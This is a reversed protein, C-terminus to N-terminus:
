LSIKKVVRGAPATVEVVAVGAPLSEVSIVDKGSYEGLLAGMVSYIRCVTYDGSLVLVRSAKDYLVDVGDEGAVSGVGSSGDKVLFTVKPLDFGRRCSSIGYVFPETNSTYYCSYYPSSMSPRNSKFLLMSSNESDHRTYVGINGGNYVFPENFVVVMNSGALDISMDGSFVDSYCNEPLMDDSGYSGEEVNGIGYSLNIDLTGSGGGMDNSIAYIAAKIEAGDEFGIIESPYISQVASHRYYAGIPTLMSSSLSEGVDVMRGEGFVNVSIPSGTNNDANGDADAVVRAKVTFCGEAEPTWGVTLKATSQSAIPETASASALIAGDNDVLEVSYDEVAYFGVNSVTVEFETPTGVNGMGSCHTEVVSMDVAPVERVAFKYFQVPVSNRVQYGFHYVGSVEVTMPISHTTWTIDNVDGELRELETTMSGVAQSDGMALTINVPFLEGLLRVDYQVMYLKGAELTVAPSIIWDNREVSPDQMNSPYYRFYTDRTGGWNRDTYWEYEDNDANVVAWQNVEDSVNFDPAYPVTHPMGSAVPKSRATGGKSGSSTMATVDYYYGHAETIDEDVLSTAVQNESVVKNDPYRVVTYRVDAADFWGGNLGNEPAAWSVTVAYSGVSKVATVSVPAGPMDVGIWLEDAYVAKGKVANANFAVISYTHMGAPVNGDNWSAEEGPTAGNITNVLEGDRYIEIGLGSLDSGDLAKAPNTWKLAATAAGQAGATVTFDTPIAPADMPLPNPDVYLGILECEDGVKGLVDAHYEWNEDRYIKVLRSMGAGQEGSTYSAWYFVESGPDYTMSQLGVPTIGTTTMLEFILEGSYADVQQLSGNDAVGILEGGGSSLAVIVREEQSGILESDGTAPDIRYLAFPAEILEGGEGTTGHEIDYGCAYLMESDPDYTMDTYIVRAAVDVKWDFTRVDSLRMTNLDLKVLKGAVLGDDSHLMYYVGGNAAAAVINYSSLDYIRSVDEPSDVPFSVVAPSQGGSSSYVQIGYVLSAACAVGIGTVFSLMFLFIKKM